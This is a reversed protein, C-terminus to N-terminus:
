TLFSRAWHASWIDAVPNQTLKFPSCGLKRIAGPGSAIGLSLGGGRRVVRPPGTKRTIISAHALKWGTPTSILKAPHKEASQPEYHLAARWTWVGDQCPGFLGPVCDSDPMVRVHEPFSITCADGLHDLKPKPFAVQIGREVVRFTMSERHESDAAQHHLCQLGKSVAPLARLADFPPHSAANRLKKSACSWNLSRLGTALSNKLCTRHPM